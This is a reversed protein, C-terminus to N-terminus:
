KTKRLAELHETERNIPEKYHQRYLAPAEKLFELYYQLAAKFDGLAVDENKAEYLLRTLMAQMHLISGNILVSLHRKGSIEVERVIHSQARVKKIAEQMSDIDGSIDDILWQCLEEFGTLDASAVLRDYLQGDDHYEALKYARDVIGKKDLENLKSLKESFERQETPLSGKVLVGDSLNFCRIHSNEAIFRELTLKSMNFIPDSIFEGSFNGQNVFENEMTPYLNIDKGDDDYYFSHQSHHAGAKKRGLDVGVFYFQRFGLKTAMVLATNAVTPTIHASEEFLTKAQSDQLLLCTSPESSKPAMIARSFKEYVAPHVTTPAMLTLKKIHEAPAYFDIKEAVAFIREQECHIDVDIGCKYLASLASACSIVIAKGSHQKILDIHQDLSPGNGVIIVPTTAIDIDFPVKKKILPIGNQLSKLFHSMAMIGDDFFGWGQIMEFFRAKYQNVLLEIEPSNQHVYLHTKAVEYRGNIYTEKLLQEFFSDEQPGLSIHLNIDREDMSELIYQWNATYLSAYFTDLCPEILYVSGITHQGLLLELQYGLGIGFMVLANLHAPLEQTKDVNSDVRAQLLKVIPNLKRSHLFDGLKEDHQFFKSTSSLPSKQYEQVQALAMLYAPYEYMFDGSKIDRLNAFNEHITVEIKDRAYVSFFEYIDPFHTKFAQMNDIYRQQLTEDDDVLLSLNNALVQLKNEINKKAELQRQLILQQQTLNDVQQLLSNNKENLNSLIPELLKIM